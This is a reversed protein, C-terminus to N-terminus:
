LFFLPFLEPPMDCQPPPMGAGGEVVTQCLRQGDQRAHAALSILAAEDLEELIRAAATDLM